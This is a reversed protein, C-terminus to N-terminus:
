TTIRSIPVPTTGSGDPGFRSHTVRAQLDRKEASSLIGHRRYTVKGDIILVTMPTGVFGADTLEDLGLLLVDVHVGVPAWYSEAVAPDLDSSLAVWRTRSGAAVSASMVELWNSVNHASPLCYPDFVMVLCGVASSCEHPLYGSGVLSPAQTPRNPGPTLAHAAPRSVAFGSLAGMAFFALYFALARIM